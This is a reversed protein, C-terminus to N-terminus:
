CCDRSSWSNCYWDHHYLARSSCYYVLFVGATSFLVSILIIFPISNFQTVLIIFMLFFAGIVLVLLLTKMVQQTLGGFRVEMRPDEFGTEKMWNKIQEIKM